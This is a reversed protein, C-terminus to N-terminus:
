QKDGKKGQILAEPHRELYDALVRLAQAARSLERLADRADQQLPSDAALTREATNLTRRAEDLVSRAAPTVDADLQKVLKDASELTRNLTGLTQRLDAGIEALELKDLKKALKSLTEQVEELTSPVTPLVPPTKTWDVQAKPENPFFELAVYLQGTLLSGSRLQARLGREILANWRARRGAEDMQIQQSGRPVFALLRKPYIEIGVPFRPRTRTEDYEFGMSKVEGIIIGHFEVPAGVSLGRLSQTFHLVAPVALTDPRKMAQARNDALAFVTNEEAPSEASSGPLTEFAIGGILISALSQTDVKIGTADM